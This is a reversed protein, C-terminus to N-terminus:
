NNTNIKQELEKLLKQNTFVYDFIKEIVISKKSSKLGLEDLITEIIRKHAVSINLYDKQHKYYDAPNIDETIKKIDLM